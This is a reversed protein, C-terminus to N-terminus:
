PTGLGALAKRRAAILFTQTRAYTDDDTMPHAQDARFRMSYEVDLTGMLWGHRPGNVTRPHMATHINRQALKAQPHKRARVIVDVFTEALFEGFRYAPPSSERTDVLTVTVNEAPVDTPNGNADLTNRPEPAGDRPNLWISPLVLSPALNNSQVVGQAILYARMEDLVWLDPM